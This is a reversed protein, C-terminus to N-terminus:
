QGNDNVAAVASSRDRALQAMGAGIMEEVWQVFKPHPAFGSGLDFELGSLYKKEPGAGTTRAPIVIARGGQTSADAVMARIKEVWPARKEPWDERWTATRIARFKDGGVKRMHEAMTELLAQWRENQLDDGSGHAVLILTDRSPERSLARARDLLAEAFLPSAGIGGTTLLPLATRIRPAPVPGHGEQNEPGHGHGHAHGHVHGHHGHAGASGHSGPGRSHMGPDAPPPSSAAEVDLGAM